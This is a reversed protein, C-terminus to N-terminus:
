KEWVFEEKAPSGTVSSFFLDAMYDNKLTFQGIQRSHVITCNVLNSLLSIIHRFINKTLIKKNKMDMLITARGDGRM